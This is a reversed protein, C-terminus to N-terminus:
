GTPPYTNARWYRSGQEACVDIPFERRVGRFRGLNTGLRGSPSLVKKSRPASRLVAGATHTLGDLSSPFSFSSSPQLPDKRTCGWFHNVWPPKTFCICYCFLPLTPRNQVKAESLARLCPGVGDFQWALSLSSTGRM